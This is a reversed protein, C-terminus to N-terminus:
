QPEWSGNCNEQCMATGMRDGPGMTTGNHPEQSRNRDRPGMSTGTSMTTQGHNRPGM